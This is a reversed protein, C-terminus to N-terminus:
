KYKWIFGYATKRKGNCVSCIHGRIGSSLNIHKLKAIYDGACVTSSFENLLNGDKDYQLVSKCSDKLLLKYENDYHVDIGYLKAVIRVTDVCCGIKIAAEECNKSQNLINIINEYNYLQKGGGGVTDNYGNKYSDFQAIYLQEYFDADKDECTDIVSITFNDFGFENM